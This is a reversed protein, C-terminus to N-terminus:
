GAAFLWTTTDDIVKKFVLVHMDQKKKETYEKWSQLSYKTQFATRVNKIGTLRENESFKGYKKLIEYYFYATMANLIPEDFSNLYKEFAASANHYDKQMQLSFPIYFLIWEDKKGSKALNSAFTHLEAYQGSLLKGGAFNAALRALYESKNARVFTELRQLGAFDSLLLQVESLLKVNKFSAHHHDFVEVELAHCLATWDGSEANEIISKNRFYLVNILFLLIIFIPPFFWYRLLFATMDNQYTLLPMMFFSIFSSIIVINLTVILFKFKM